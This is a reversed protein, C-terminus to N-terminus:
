MKFSGDDFSSARGCAATTRERNHSPTAQDNEWVVAGTSPNYKVYKYQFATGPPLQVTGSWPVNAGSGQITLAFSSAPAWNGLATLNGVVYLNQGWVTNANAITFTVPVTTCGGGGVKQGTYIVVAPVSAGGVPGISLTANGGADVTVADGSCATGSANLLGHVINCYTGAPLGTSFTRSWTSGDNNLAVFGTNGRAFALQNDNGTQIRTMAQGAVASRFAVVPYLDAWRHVFDWDRMIVPNGAADYPSAAPADQDV